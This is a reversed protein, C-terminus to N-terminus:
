GESWVMRAFADTVNVTETAPVEGSLKWHLKFLLLIGPAVLTESVIELTCGGSAPTYATVIVFAAPEVFLEFAINVTPGGTNQVGGGTPITLQHCASLL